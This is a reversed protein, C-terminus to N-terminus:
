EQYFREMRDRKLISKSVIGSLQSFIGNRFKIQYFEFTKLGHSRTCVLGDKVCFNSQTIFSKPTLYCLFFGKLIAAANCDIRCIKFNKFSNFNFCTHLDTGIM